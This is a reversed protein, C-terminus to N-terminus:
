LSNLASLADLVDGNTMRRRDRLTRAFDTAISMVGYHNFVRHSYVYCKEFVQTCEDDDLACTERGEELVHDLLTQKLEQSIPKHDFILRRCMINGLTMATTLRFNAVMREWAAKASLSPNGTFYYEPTMELGQGTEADLDVAGLMEDCDWMVISIAMGALGYSKDEENRYKLNESM